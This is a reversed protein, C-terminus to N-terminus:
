NLRFHFVGWTLHGKQGGEIWHRLGRKMNEIYENSVLGDLDAERRETEALVRSYHNVLQDTMEKFGTGTLGASAAARHYFGPSGLTELHIRDLIPQLVGDPCDDSQMPDTFVFNGGPRLVRAVERVVRERDGSHLIADQSWVLDFACDEAPIEEFSGDIVEILGDLGRQANLERARANERESLNLATVRAGYKSALYRAAGGYGSGMDLVATESDLAEPIEALHTVTRRSAERISDDGSNYLGIHIDEGGWVISYFNDADGSNYYNRATQVTESYTQAADPM